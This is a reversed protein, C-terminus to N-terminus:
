GLLWAAGVLAGFAGAALLAGLLLIGALVLAVGVVGALAAGVSDDGTAPVPPREWPPLSGRPDKGGCLLGILALGIVIYLIM